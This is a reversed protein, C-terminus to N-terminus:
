ASSLLLLRRWGCAAQVARLHTEVVITREVVVAAGAVAGIVVVVVAAVMMAITIVM